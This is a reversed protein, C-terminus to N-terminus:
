RVFHLVSWSFVFLRGVGFDLGALEPALILVIQLFLEVLEFGLQALQAHLLDGATSSGLQRSHVNLAFNLLQSMGFDPLRSPSKAWDSVSWNPSRVSVVEAFGNGPGQGDDVRVLAVLEAQEVLALLVQREVQSRLLGARDTSSQGLLIGTSHCLLLLLSDGMERRPLIRHLRLLRTRDRSPLSTHTRPIRRFPPRLSIEFIEILSLSLTSLLTTSNGPAVNTPM